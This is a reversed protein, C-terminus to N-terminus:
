NARAPRWEDAAKKVEVIQERALAL